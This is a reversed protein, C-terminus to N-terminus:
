SNSKVTGKLIQELRPPEWGDPKLIKGDPRRKVVGDRIKDMNSRHVEDFFPEIDVGIVYATQYTVYLLDCIADLVAILDHNFLANNLEDSEEDILSLRLDITSLKIDSIQEQVIECSRSFEEVQQQPKHM